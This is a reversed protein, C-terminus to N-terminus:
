GVRAKRYRGVRLLRDIDPDFSPVRSTGLEGMDIVGDPSRRRVHLRGALRLTGLRVDRTPAPLTVQDPDSDDFQYDGKRVREVIEVAADLAQQLREDDRDDSPDIKLDVKLEDVTPPWM